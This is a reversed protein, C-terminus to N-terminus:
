DMRKFESTTHTCWDDKIGLTSSTHTCLRKSYGVVSWMEIVRWECCMPWCVSSDDYSHSRKLVSQYTWVVTKISMWIVVKHIRIVGKTEEFEEKLQKYNLFSTRQLNHFGRDKEIAEEGWFLLNVIDFLKPKYNNILKKNWCSLSTAVLQDMHPSLFTNPYIMRAGIQLDRMQIWYICVHKNIVLLYLDSSDLVVNSNYIIFQHVFHYVNSILTYM